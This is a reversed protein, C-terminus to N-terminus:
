FLMWIIIKATLALLLSSVMVEGVIRPLESKKSAKIKFGNRSNALYNDTAEERLHNISKRKGEHEIIFVQSIYDRLPVIERLQGTGGVQTVVYLEGNVRLVDGLRVEIKM